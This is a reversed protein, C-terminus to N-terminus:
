EAAHAGRNSSDDAIDGRDQAHDRDSRNRNEVHTPHCRFCVPMPIGVNIANDGVLLDPLVQNRKRAGFYRAHLAIGTRLDRPEGDFRKLRLFVLGHDATLAARLLQLVPTALFIASAGVPSTLM